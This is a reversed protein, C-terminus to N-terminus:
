TTAGAANQNTNETHDKGLVEEVIWLIDQVSVTKDGNVDLKLRRVDSVSYSLNEPTTVNHLIDSVMGGDFATVEDNGDIDGNYTIETATGEGLSLKAALTAATEAADVFIAYGGYKESWYFARTSDNLQYTQGDERKDTVLIALQERSAMAQYDEFSVFEFTGPLEDYTVTIEGVIADGPITYSGDPNSTITQMDGDGVQYKVATVV